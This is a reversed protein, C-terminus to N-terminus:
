CFKQKMVSSLDTKTTKKMRLKYIGNDFMNDANKHLEPTLKTIPKNIFTLSRTEDSILERYEDISLNGYYKNLIYRPDPAPKINRDYNYIESYINNLLKYREFKISQPIDEKFLYACACQPTCFCGYVNYTKDLKFKPIHVPQNNFECTCWFCSSIKNISKNNILSQSLKHLKENLTDQQNDDSQSVQKTYGELKSDNFSFGEINNKKEVIYTSNCKLHLIISKKPKNQKAEVTQKSVIKGGKPKRGRKKPVKDNTM